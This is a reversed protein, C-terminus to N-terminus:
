LLDKYYLLIIIFKKLVWGLQGLFRKTNIKFNEMNYCAILNGRAM